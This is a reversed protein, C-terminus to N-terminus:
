CTLELSEPEEDLDARESGPGLETPQGRFETESWFTVTAEPGVRISEAEDTWDDAAGALNNLDAYRGPETLRYNDDTEDFDDEEFLHVWCGDGGNTGAVSSSTPLGTDTTSADTSPATSVVTSTTSSTTSSPSTTTADTDTLPEATDDGGCGAMVLAIAFLSGTLRRSTM